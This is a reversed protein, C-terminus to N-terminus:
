TSSTPVSSDTAARATSPIRRRVVNGVRHTHTLVSAAMTQKAITAGRACPRDTASSIGTRRVRLAGTASAGGGGLQITADTARPRLATLEETVASMTEAFACSGGDSAIDSEMTHPTILAVISTM